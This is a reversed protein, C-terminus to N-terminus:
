NKQQQFMISKRRFEIKYEERKKMAASRKANQDAELQETSIERTQLPPQRPPDAQGGFTSMRRGPLTRTIGPKPIPSNPNSKFHKMSPPSSRATLKIKEPDVEQKTMQLAMELAKLRNETEIQKQEAENARRESEQLALDKAIVEQEKAKVEAKFRNIDQVKTTYDSPKAALTMKSVYGSLAKEKVGSGDSRLSSKYIASSRRDFNSQETEIGVDVRIGQDIETGETSKGTTVVVLEGEERNPRAWRKENRSPSFYFVKRSLPDTKELWDYVLIEGGSSLNTMAAAISNSLVEQIKGEQAAM